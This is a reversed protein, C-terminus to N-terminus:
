GEKVCEFATAMRYGAPQNPHPSALGAHVSAVHLRALEGTLDDPLKQDCQCCYRGPAREILYVVDHPQAKLMIRDASLVMWGEAIAAAVLRPSFNQRPGAHLIEVGRLPPVLRGLVGNECGAPCADVGTSDANIVVGKGACTQCREERTKWDDRPRDHDYLRKLRM